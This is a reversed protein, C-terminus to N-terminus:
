GISFLILQFMAVVHIAVIESNLVSTGVTLRRVVIM